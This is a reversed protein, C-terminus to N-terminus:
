VCKRANLESLGISQYWAQLTGFNCSFKFSKLVLLWTVHTLFGVVMLWISLIFHILWVDMMWFWLGVTSTEYGYGYGSVCVDLGAQAVGM